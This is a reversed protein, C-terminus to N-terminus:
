NVLIDVISGQCLGKTNLVLGRIHLKDEVLEKWTQALLLSMTTLKFLVFHITIPGGDFVDCKTMVGEARRPDTVQPSGFSHHSLDSTV